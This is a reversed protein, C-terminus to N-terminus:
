GFLKWFMRSGHAEYIEGSFCAQKLMPDVVDSSWSALPFDAQVEGAAMARLFQRADPESLRAFPVGHTRACAADAAALGAKFLEPRGPAGPDGALHADIFAALGSTVGDPTLQDAPCLANVMAETFAAEVDTLSRYRSAATASAAADTALAPALPLTAAATLTRALFGRRSVGNTALAGM